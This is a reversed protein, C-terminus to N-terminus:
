DEMWEIILTNKIKNYKITPKSNFQTLGELRSTAYDIIDDNSLELKLRAM